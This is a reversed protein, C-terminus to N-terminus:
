HWGISTHFKGDYYNEIAFGGPYRTALSVFYNDSINDNEDLLEKISFGSIKDRKVGLGAPNLHIADLNDSTSASLGHWSHFDYNQQSILTQFLLVTVLLYKLSTM